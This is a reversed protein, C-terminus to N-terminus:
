EKKGAEQISKREKEQRIERRKEVIASSFMLGAGIGTLIAGPYLGVVTQASAASAMAAAITIKRRVRSESEDKLSALYRDSSTTSDLGGRIETMVDIANRIEYNTGDKNLEYFEETNKDKNHKRLRVPRDIGKVEDQEKLIQLNTLMDMGEDGTGKFYGSPIGDRDYYVKKNKILEADPLDSRAELITGDDSVRGIQEVRVAGDREKVKEIWKSGGRDSEEYYRKPPEEVEDELKLLKLLADNLTIKEKDRHIFDKLRKGFSKSRAVEAQISEAQNEGNTKSTENKSETQGPVPTEAM